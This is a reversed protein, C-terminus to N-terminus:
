ANSKYNNLLNNIHKELTDLYKFAFYPKQQEPLQKFLDLFCGYKDLFTDYPNPDIKWSELACKVYYQAKEIDLKETGKSKARILYKICNGLDFPAFRLVHIPELKAANDTYHPPHNVMDVM